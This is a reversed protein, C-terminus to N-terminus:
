IRTGPNGPDYRNVCAVANPNWYTGNPNKGTWPQYGRERFLLMATQLNCAANFCSTSTSCSGQHYAPNGWNGPRTTIQFLGCAGTSSVQTRVGSSETMAICSMASAQKENLGYEMISAISCGPNSDPCPARATGVQPLSGTVQRIFDLGGTAIPLPERVILCMDDGNPSPAWIANWPGLKTEGSVVAGPDYIMKMVFDVGLWAGLIILLGVMSSGIVNRAQERAGPNGGRTMFIFAAYVLALVIVLVAIGIATNIFNQLVKLVCGWSPASPSTAGTLSGDAAVVPVSECKCADPIIPDFMSGQGQAFASLPTLAIVSLLLFASLRLRMRVKM